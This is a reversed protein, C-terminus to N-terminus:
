TKIIMELIFAFNCLFFVSVVGIILGFRQKVILREKFLLAAAITALILGGGNVVPFFVASDMTGALYLNIKNAIAICIGSLAALIGVSFSLHMSQKKAKKEKLSCILCAAGSVLVSVTFAIMLFSNLEECHSSQQIKQMVGILGNTIFAGLCLLLWRFSINKEGTNKETSLAISFFM